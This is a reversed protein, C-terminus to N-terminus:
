GKLCDRIGQALGTLLAEYLGAGPELSSGAPDLVAGIRVSTGEVLTEVLKPDHATEPFACLIGGKTLDERLDQLRGAGPAAADGLAISGAVTLGYHAAFYGYADHFVVFPKGQVPALMAAVEADLAAIRAQAAEANAKYTAANAPDHGALEGAILGLWLRANAPDLWAHPDLGEHAHDDHAHDHGAKKAKDDHGHDHGHDGAKEAKHDHGHDHDDHGAKGGHDHGHDHGTKEAGHGHDGHDHAGTAGYDQRHTGEASLLALRHSKGGIGDLARNLWPTMEPGVWVVLDADQLGAAQSPRLAFSHANAGRDLLLEPQGLDGMVMAVLAHVPPIDTVVRPTEALVPLPMLGLAFPLLRRM